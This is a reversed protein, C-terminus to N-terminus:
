FFLPKGTCKKYPSMCDQFDIDSLHNFAIQQLEQKNTFEYYFLSNTSNYHEIIIFHQM